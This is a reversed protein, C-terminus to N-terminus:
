EEEPFRTETNEKHLLAVRFSGGAVSTFLRGINDALAMAEGVDVSPRLYLVHLAKETKNTVATRGSDVFPSGFPGAEDASVLINELSNMRGNLGEYADDVTGKRITAPGSLRDADYLGCPIGERLSFFNNLDAGLNIPSPAEGKKIRRMLAEASPRYRGPDKGFAKWVKRWEAIGPIDTVPKDELSLELERYFLDIRGELMGPANRLDIRNYHIIGFKLDPM